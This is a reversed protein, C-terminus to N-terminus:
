AALKEAMHLISDTSLDETGYGAFGHIHSDILGPVLYSGGADIINDDRSFNKQRFRRESFVEVISAGEVLVASEPMQAYGAVVTANHICTFPM